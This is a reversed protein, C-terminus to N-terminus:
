RLVDVDKLAYYMNLLSDSHKESMISRRSSISTSGIARRLLKAEEVSMELTVVEPTTIIEMRTSEPTYNSKM